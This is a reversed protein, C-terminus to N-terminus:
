IVCLFCGEQYDCHLSCFSLMKGKIFFTEACCRSKEIDDNLLCM